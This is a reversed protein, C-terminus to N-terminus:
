IATLSLIGIGNLIPEVLTFIKLKNLITLQFELHIDLQVTFGINVARKLLDLLFRYVKESYNGLVM